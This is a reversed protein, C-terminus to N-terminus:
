EKKIKIFKNRRFKDTLKSQWTDSGYGEPYKVTEKHTSTDEVIVRGDNFATEMIGDHAHLYKPTGCWKVYEKEYALKHRAKEILDAYETM